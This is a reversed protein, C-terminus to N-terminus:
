SSSVISCIRQSQEVSRLVLNRWDKGDRSSILHPVARMILDRAEASLILNQWFNPEAEVINIVIQAYRLCRQIDIPQLRFVTQIKYPYM